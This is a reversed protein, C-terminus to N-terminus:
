DYTIAFQKIKNGLTEDALIGEWKKKIITMMLQTVVVERSLCKRTKRVVFTTFVQRALLM